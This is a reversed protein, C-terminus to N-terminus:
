APVLQRDGHSPPQSIVLFRTDTSSNNFVRHPIGPLVQIAEGPSLTFFDGEIELTLEGSLVYFLQQAKEHLHRQEATGPPMREEIVSLDASRLFHWGDCEDGWLYHEATEKSITTKLTISGTVCQVFNKSGLKTRKRSSLDCYVQSV